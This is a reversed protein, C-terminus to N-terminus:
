SIAKFTVTSCPRDADLTETHSTRDNFAIDYGGYNITYVSFPAAANKLTCALTFNRTPLIIDPIPDERSDSDYITITKKNNEDDTYTLTLDGVAAAIGAPTSGGVNSNGFEVDSSHEACVLTYGISDLERGEQNIVCLKGDNTNITALKLTGGDEVSILTSTDEADGGVQLRITSNDNYNNLEGGDEILILPQKCGSVGTIVAQNDLQGESQVVLPSHVCDADPSLTLYPTQSEMQMEMQVVGAIKLQGSKVVEIISHESKYAVM